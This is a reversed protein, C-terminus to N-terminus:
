AIRGVLRQFDEINSCREIGIEYSVIHRKTLDALSQDMTVMGHQGGAQMATAIQHVKAERILNRIAPTAIMVESAVARGQGDSTPVLQQTVVAQLTAALQVRVQQQQHPPFVDVIRDISQPADQTHLTAFVLHGTEAATLATSIAELDRMEGVLIVDPDQRLVHRLANAFGHTDTGVERQNVIAKKHSHLFEIPDEVTMIHVPRRQNILDIMSALTTSKGSGTPGTILVLGRPLDSLSTVVPPLGLDALSQIESPIARFVAGISDRQFFVNVRFRGCRPVPHSCDLELDEELSERQKETLIAYIMRRLEAPTMPDLDPLFSLRGNVRVQPPSGATLHLDSGKAEVLLTLLENIHLQDHIMAESTNGPYQVSGDPAVVQLDPQKPGHVFDIARVIAARTALVLKVPMGTIQELKHHADPDFPDAVAVVLGPGHVRLPISTLSRASQEPLKGVAESEFLEDDLEVFDMGVRDAIARLLDEERVHGEEVLLRAVPVGVETERVLLQELTDKSVLRRDVLLEGLKRSATNV